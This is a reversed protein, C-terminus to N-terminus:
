PRKPTGANVGTIRLTTSIAAATQAAGSRSWGIMASAYAIKTAPRAWSSNWSGKRACIRANGLGRHRGCCSPTRRANRKITGAIKPEDTACILTSSDPMMADSSGTPLM